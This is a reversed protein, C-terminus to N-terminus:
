IELFSKDNSTEVRKLELFLNKKELFARSM